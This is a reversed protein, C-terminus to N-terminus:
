SSMFSVVSTNARVEPLNPKVILILVVSTVYWDAGSFGCSFGWHIQIQISVPSFEIILVIAWLTHVCCYISYQLKHRNKVLHNKFSDLTGPRMINSDLTNWDQLTKLFYHENTFILIKRTRRICKQISQVHELIRSNFTHNLPFRWWISLLRTSHRFAFIRGRKPINLNAM